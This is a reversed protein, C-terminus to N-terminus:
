SGVYDASAHDGWLFATNWNTIQGSTITSAASVGFVPDTESIQGIINDFYAKTVADQNNVPNAMNTIRSSGANLGADAAITSSFTKTGNITQNGSTSVADTIGYGSITTPKGTTIKSWDLNPIDSALLARFSPTGTTENPSALVLNANQSALNASITGSGTVPTGSVSFINPLALGISTVTGVNWTRNASLNQSIGNISLTRSSGVYDASAHDGWLFATNWNTIQDSTINKAPSGGFVPDTETIPTTISQATNAHLAYPVSLAQSTGSISYNNSGAPDAETKIFYSGSAWNINAFVGNLVSGQGITFSVMGNTNSILSHTESYIVPGVESGQLISVKIGVPANTVLRNFNNRIVLQHSIGQPAQAIVSLVLSTLCIFVILKRM